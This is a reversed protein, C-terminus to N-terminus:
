KGRQHCELGTADFSVLSFDGAYKLTATNNGLVIFQYTGMINWGQSYKFGKDGTEDETFRVFYTKSNFDYCESDAVEFARFVAAAAMSGTLFPETAKPEEVPKEVIKEETVPPAETQKEEVYVPHSKVKPTDGHMRIAVSIVIIGVVIVSACIILHTKTSM